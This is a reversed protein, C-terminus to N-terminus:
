LCQIPCVGSWDRIAGWEDLSNRDSAAEGRFFGAGADFNSIVCYSCTGSTERVGVSPCIKIGFDLKM